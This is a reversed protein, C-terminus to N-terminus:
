AHKEQRHQTLADVAADRSPCADSRWTHASSCVAVHRAQTHPPTCCECGTLHRHISGIRVGDLYVDTVESGVVRYAVGLAIAM